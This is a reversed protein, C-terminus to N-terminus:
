VKRVRITFEYLGYDHLLAVEKSFHRKCHDFFFSPDAYYLHPRRKELDSYSTLLNFSFGKRSRVNMADLTKLIYRLWRKPNTQLKVNFLGSAISYDAERMDRSREIVRFTTKPGIRPRQRATQIMATSLDYGQYIICRYRHRLLFERFAGYGCGLDNLRFSPKEFLGLFQRFRMEQSSRDRWDVGRACPGHAKLAASYYAEVARLLPGDANM